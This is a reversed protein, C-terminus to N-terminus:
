RQNTSTIEKDHKHLNSLRYVLLILPLSLMLLPYFHQIEANAYLLGACFPGLFLGLDLGVYYTSNALGRRGEDALLMATSQCVSCMLGYGGAMFGAALMLGANGQMFTLLLMGVASSILSGLMFYFFPLKDFLSKLALRLILLVAAYIIFFLSSRVELGRTNIYTVLFNTTACYPIGFLM